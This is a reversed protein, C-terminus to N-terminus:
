AKQARIVRDINNLDRFVKIDRFSGSSEFLGAIEKHMEDGIELVLYGDEKLFFPSEKIIRKYFDLGDAGGNLANYPEQKVEKPLGEIAASLIYPPNAVMINFRGKFAQPINCLDARIFEIRDSVNNLEANNKAVSIAEESIDSAIIRCQTLAKTLSIAVNGSGTCLDLILPEYTTNRMDYQANQILLGIVVDVLIETEPRPIFVGDKVTLDNGYFNVKGTIYQLPEGQMRRVIMNELCAIHEPSLIIDKTYLDIIRCGLIHSLMIEANIRSSDVGYSKLRSVLGSISSRKKYVVEKKNNTATSKAPNM